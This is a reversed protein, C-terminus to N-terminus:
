TWARWGCGGAIPGCCCRVLMTLSPQDHGVVAVSEGEAVRLSVARLAATGRQVHLGEIEIASM